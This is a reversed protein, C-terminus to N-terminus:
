EEYKGLIIKSLIGLLLIVSLTLSVYDLYTPFAKIGFSFIGRISWLAIFFGSVYITLETKKTIYRLFLYVYMCSALGFVLFLMQDFFRRRLDFDFELNGAKFQIDPDDKLVLGEVRNHFHIGKFEIEPTPEIQFLFGLNEMPFQLHNGRDPPMSVDKIISSFINGKGSYKATKIESPPGDPRKILLYVRQDNKLNVPALTVAIKTKVWTESGVGGLKQLEFHLLSEFNRNKPFEYNKKYGKDTLEYFIYNHVNYDHIFFRIVVIVIILLSIFWVASLFSMKKCIKSM